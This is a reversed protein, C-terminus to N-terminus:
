RDPIILEVNYESDLPGIGEENTEEVKQIM